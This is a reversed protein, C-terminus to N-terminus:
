RGVNLEEMVDTRWTALRSDVVTRQQEPLNRIRPGNDVLYGTCDWCDHSSSEGLRYYEPIWSPCMEEVYEWVQARTWDQLPFHYTIGTAEDKFGDRIPSKLRDVNKQGRYIDTVGLAMCTRLMPEWLSRRCCDPGFQYKTTLPKNSLYEGWLSRGLPVVDVPYGHERIAKPQDGRVEMFNPVMERVRAMWAVTDPYAAGSNVWMVISDQWMGRLSFLLALSDVGGSIQISNM